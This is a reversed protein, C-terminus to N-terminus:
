RMKHNGMLAIKQTWEYQENNEPCSEGRVKEIERLAEDLVIGFRCLVLAMMMSSRGVGGRCHFLVKKGQLVDKELIDIFSVTATDSDAVEDRIPFNHYQLGIDKCVAEEKLLSHKKQEEETLLSVVTDFGANKIYSISEYLRDGGEPHGMLACHGELLSNIIYIDKM